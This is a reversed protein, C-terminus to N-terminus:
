CSVPEEFWRDRIALHLAIKMMKRNAPTKLPLSSLMETRTEDSRTALCVWAERNVRIIKCHPKILSRVKRLRHYRTLIVSGYLCAFTIFYFNHYGFTNAHLEYLLQEESSLGSFEAKRKCHTHQQAQRPGQHLGLLLRLADTSVVEFVVPWFGSYCSVSKFISNLAAISM